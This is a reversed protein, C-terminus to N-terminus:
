SVKIESLSHEDRKIGNPILPGERPSSVVGNLQLKNYNEDKQYKKKGEQYKTYTYMFGGVTNMVIGTCPPLKM